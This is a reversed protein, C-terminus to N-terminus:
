ELPLSLKLTQFYDLGLRRNSEANMLSAWIWGRRLSLWQLSFSWASSIAYFTVGCASSFVEVQPTVANTPLKLSRVEM